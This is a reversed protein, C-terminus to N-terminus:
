RARYGDWVARAQADALPDREVRAAQGPMAPALRLGAPALCQALPLPERGRVHREFFGNWDGDGAQRLAAEIDPWAYTRAGAGTDRWLADFMDALGRKGDSAARLQMDWCLAVLAGGSYLPPGKRTGPAELPTQLRAYHDVHESLKRLFTPEDIRGTALLGHNAMYETFGEQFWQTAAYDTGRLRWGNWYHFLEHALTNGWEPLNARTPASETNMAFSDLFSEGGREPQPLLVVLYAGSQDLPLTAVFDRAVAGMTESILGGAARWPGIPVIRVTLGGAEITTPPHRTMALLNDALSGVGPARNAVGADPWATAAHWGQPPDLRVDSTSQRPTTIFLSRGALIINDGDVFASERPAPWDLAALPAYGVAYELRIRGSLARELQWGEKTRRAGVVNGAADRVRLGDVLAPWGDTDLPEFGGPRTTSMALVDGDIPLEAQVGLRLPAHQLVRVRYSAPAVVGQDAALTSTPALWLGPLLLLPWCARVPSM